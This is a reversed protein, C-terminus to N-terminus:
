LNKSKTMKGSKENQNENLKLSDNKTNRMYIVNIAWDTKVTNMTDPYRSIYNFFVKRDILVNSTVFYSFSSSEIDNQGRKKGRRKLFTGWCNQKLKGFCYLIYQLINKKNNVRM